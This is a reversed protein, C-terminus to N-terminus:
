KIKKANMKPVKAAKPGMEANGVVNRVVKEPLCCGGSKKTGQMKEKAM